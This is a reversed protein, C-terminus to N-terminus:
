GASVAVGGSTSCARLPHAPVPRRSAREAAAPTERAPTEGAPPPPPVAVVDPAPLQRVAGDLNLGDALDALAILRRTAAPAAVIRCSRGAAALGATFATLAHLGSCDWFRAGAVDVVIQRTGLGAAQALGDAVLPTTSLDADGTIRLVVQDPGPVLVANLLPV